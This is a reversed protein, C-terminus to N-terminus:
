LQPLLRTIYHSCCRLRIADLPEASKEEADDFSLEAKLGALARYCEKFAADVKDLDKMLRMGSVIYSAFLNPETM